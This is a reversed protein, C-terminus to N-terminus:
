AFYSQMPNCMFSIQVWSVGASPLGDVADEHFVCEIVDFAQNM